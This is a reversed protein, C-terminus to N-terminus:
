KYVTVTKEEPTVIYLEEAAIAYGDHSYYSYYIAYCVDKWSFIVECQEAGGEGGGEQLLWTLGVVAPQELIFEEVCGSVDDENFSEGLVEKYIALYDTVRTAMTTNELITLAHKFYTFDPRILYQINTLIFDTAWGKTLSVVTKKLAMAYAKRWNPKNICNPNLLWRELAIVTVEERFMRVQQEIPLLDFKSKDILVDQGFRLCNTYVPVRPYAVLRHLYDHDYEYHVYTNDFFKDKTKYLSLFEKNGFKMEWHTRLEILLEPLLVAGKSQLLLLDQIHKEWFIDYCLHAFKITYLADPTAYKNIGVSNSPILRLINEPLICADQERKSPLEKTAWIDIDKVREISCFGHFQLAKSGVIVEM